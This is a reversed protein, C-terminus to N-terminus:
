SFRAAYAAELEDWPILEALRLWRNSVNLKGGFPMLETFLYPTTRDIHKYM